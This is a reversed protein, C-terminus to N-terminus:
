RTWLFIGLCMEDTTGEGWTVDRPAQQVENVYPQNEASNDYHCELHLEDGPQYAKPEVFGYMGQWHFDYDSISLMCESSGDAHQLTLRARTGLQHMHLAAGYLTMADGQTLATADFDWAHMVDGDGAPILMADSTVWSPNTWPQVTAPKDVSADLKLQIASRDAQFGGAHSNYHVQLIIMSGPAIAIGLGPPLDSGRSGPAWGGIWTRAPGGTGGFCTYGPGSEAADMDEYTAVQDPTALFAIVHHVIAENGPVVNFGTVYQTSTM